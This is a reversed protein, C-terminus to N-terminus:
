ERWDDDWTDYRNGKVGVSNADIEANPDMDLDPDSNAIITAATIHLMETKPIIYTKKMTKSVRGGAAEERPPLPPQHMPAAPDNNLPQKNQITLSKIANGEGM